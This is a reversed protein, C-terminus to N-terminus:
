SVAEQAKVGWSSLGLMASPEEQRRSDNGGRGGVRHDLNIQSFHYPANFVPLLASPVLNFPDGLVSQRSCSCLKWICSTNQEKAWGIKTRHISIVNAVEAFDKLSFFLSGHDLLNEMAKMQDRYWRIRVDSSFCNEDM